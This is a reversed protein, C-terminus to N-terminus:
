NLGTESLSKCTELNHRYAQYYDGDLTHDTTLLLKM